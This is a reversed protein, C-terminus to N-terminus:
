AAAGVDIIVRRRRRLVYRGVGIVAAVVTVLAVVILVLRTRLTWRSPPRLALVAAAM